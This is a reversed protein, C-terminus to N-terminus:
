SVLKRLREDRLYLGVWALVGLVVPFLFWADEVRVQTAAAGGLYGTLLVSGFFATRPIAYIVTCVLLTIGIWPLLVESYGLEVTGEVSHREKVAKGIGDFILFLIVLGSIGRGIWVSTSSSTNQTIGTSSGYLHNTAM